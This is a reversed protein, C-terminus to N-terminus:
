HGFDYWAWRWSDLACRFIDARFHEQLGAGFISTDENQFCQANAGNICTHTGAIIM